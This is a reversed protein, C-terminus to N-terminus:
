QLVVQRNNQQLHFSVSVTVCQLQVHIPLILLLHKNVEVQGVLMTIEKDNGEQSNIQTVM